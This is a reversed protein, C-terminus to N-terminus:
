DREDISPAIASAFLAVRDSVKVKPTAKRVYFDVFENFSIAGSSDGDLDALMDAVALSPAVLGDKVLAAHLAPAEASSITGSM